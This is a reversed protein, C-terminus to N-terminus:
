IFEQGYFVIIMFAVFPIMLGVIFKSEDGLTVTFADFMASMFPAMFAFIIVAIIGYIIAGVKSM